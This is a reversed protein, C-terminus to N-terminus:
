TSLVVHSMVQVSLKADAAPSGGHRATGTSVTTGLRCDGAISSYRLTNAPLQCCLRAADSNCFKSSVSSWSNYSCPSWYTCSWPSVIYCATAISM